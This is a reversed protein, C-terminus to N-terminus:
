RRSRRPRDAHDDLDHGHGPLLQDATTLAAAIRMTGPEPATVLTYDKALRAQLVAFLRDAVLKRDEKSMDNM